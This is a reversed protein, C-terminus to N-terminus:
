REEQRAIEARVDEPIPWFYLFGRCPVPVALPRTERLVYGVPGRWWASLMLRDAEAGRITGVHEGNIKAVWGVLLTTCVVAGRVQVKTEDILSSIWPDGEIACCADRDVPKMGAHIAIRKGILKEPPRKDRNEIPKGLDSVAHAWPQILTIADTPTNLMVGGGEV